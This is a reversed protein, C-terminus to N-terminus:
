AARAAPRATLWARAPLPRGSCAAGGRRRRRTPVFLEAASALAVAGAYLEHEACAREDATEPAPKAALRQADAHAERLKDRMDAVLRPASLGLASLLTKCNLANYLSLGGKGGNADVRVLRAVEALAAAKKATADESASAASRLRMTAAASAAAAARTAESHLPAASSFPLTSPLPLLQPPLAPPALAARFAAVRLHVAAAHGAPARARLWALVVDARLVGDAGLCAGGTGASLYRLYLQLLGGFITCAAGSVWAEPLVSAAHRLLRAVAEHNPLLCKYATLSGFFAAHAEKRAEPTRGNKLVHARVARVGTLAGEVSCRLAFPKITDLFANSNHAGLLEAYADADTRKRKAGGASAEASAAAAAARAGRRRRKRAAELAAVAVEAAQACSPEDAWRRFFRQLTNSFTTSGCMVSKRGERAAQRQQLTPRGADASGFPAGDTPLKTVVKRPPAM